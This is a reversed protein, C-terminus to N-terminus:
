AVNRESLDQTTNLSVERLRSIFPVLNLLM